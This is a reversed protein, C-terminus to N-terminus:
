FSYYSPVAKNANIGPEPFLAIMPYMGWANAYAWSYKAGNTDVILDIDSQAGVAVAVM